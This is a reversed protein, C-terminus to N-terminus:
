YEVTRWHGSPSQEELIFIVDRPFRARTAMDPALSPGPVAYGRPISCFLPNCIATPGYKHNHVHGAIRLMYGPLSMIPTVQNRKRGKRTYKTIYGNKDQFITFSAEKSTDMIVMNIAITSARSYVSFLSNGMDKRLKEGTVVIGGYTPPYGANGGGGQEQGFEAGFDSPLGLDGSFIESNGNNGEVYTGGSTSVTDGSSL